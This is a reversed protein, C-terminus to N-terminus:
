SLTVATRYIRVSDGLALNRHKDPNTAGVLSAGVPIRGNM